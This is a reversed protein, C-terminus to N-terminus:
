RGEKRGEKRKVKRGERRKDELFDNDLAVIYHPEDRPIFL